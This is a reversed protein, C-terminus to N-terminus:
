QSYEFDIIESDFMVNNYPHVVNVQPKPEENGCLLKNFVLVCSFWFLLWLCGLVIFLLATNTNPENKLFLSGKYEFCDVTSQNYESALSQANFLAQTRAVLSEGNHCKTERFTCQSDVDPVEYQIMMTQSESINSNELYGYLAVCTGLDSVCGKGCDCRVFGQEEPTLALSITSPVSVNSVFCKSPDPTSVIVYVGYGILLLPCLITIVATTKVKRNENSPMTALPDLNAHLHTTSCHPRSTCCIYLKM